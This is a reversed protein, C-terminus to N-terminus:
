SSVKRTFINVSANCIECAMDVSKKSQNGDLNLKSVTAAAGMHQLCWCGTFLYTPRHNLFNNDNQWRDNLSILKFEVNTLLIIGTYSPMVM